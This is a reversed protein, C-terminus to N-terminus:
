LYGLARLQETTDGEVARGAGCELQDDTHVDFEPENWWRWLQRKLREAIEPHKGAVNITEGPDAELDYLVLDVGSGGIWRQEGGMRTHHVKFRGERATKIWNGRTATGGEAFVASDPRADGRLVPWLSTGQAFGRGPTLLGATELLTPGLDLLEVPDREVKPEIRGPWHLVFPVHLCTQFAFRGHDFFYHHEGLSEGHDSTFATMTDAMRGDAALRDLLEGIQEDAYAIEADYRAVYFALRDQHGITQRRGIGGMQNSHKDLLRIRRADRQFVEDNQFRGRWPQPAEYPFHPDIYHVWLFWPREGDLSEAAVIALRTVNEARIPDGGDPHPEKWAEVYADFGQDFNFERALAGNAVVARTQYGGRQLLEAVTTFDCPLPIGIQRVNHNDKPYTSTFMSAFSPGTKPWQVQAAAFRVGESALRDIRPSTARPYGWASLHDARLTDVTILLLNPRRGKRDAGAEAAPEIGNCGTGLATALALASWGGTPRRTRRRRSTPDPVKL